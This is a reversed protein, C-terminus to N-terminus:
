DLAVGSNSTLQPLNFNIELGSGSFIDLLGVRCMVFRLHAHEHHAALQFLELVLPLAQLPVCLTNATEQIERPLQGRESRLEGLLYGLRVLALFRSNDLDNLSLFVFTLVQSPLHM